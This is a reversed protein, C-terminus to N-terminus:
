ICGLSSLSVFSDGGVIIHDLLPVQLIKSIEVIKETICLDQQSPTPDGSPHNHALIFGSARHMLVHHFIHRPDVITYADSGQTLLQMHILKKRRNLLLLYLMEDTQQTLLPYLIQYAQQPTTISSPYTIPLLARRGIELSAFIRESLELSIQTQQALVRPNLKSLAQISTTVDLIHQATIWRKKGGIISSLLELDSKPSSSLTHM